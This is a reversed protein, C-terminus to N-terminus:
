AIGPYMTTGGSMVTNAYLDKRIDVDCKMIHPLLGEEALQARMHKAIVDTQADRAYTKIPYQLSGKRTEIVNGNECLLNGAPGTDQGLVGAHPVSVVLNCDGLRWRVGCQEKKM